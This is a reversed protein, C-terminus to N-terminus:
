TPSNIYNVSLIGAAQNKAKKASNVIRFAFITSIIPNLIMGFFFICIMYMGGLNAMTYLINYVMPMKEGEDEAAITKLNRDFLALILVTLSVHTISKIM